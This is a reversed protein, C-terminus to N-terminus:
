QSRETAREIGLTALLDEHLEFWVTHFSDIVPKTFWETHGAHVREVAAGFRDSYTGFRDLAGALAEVIPTIAVHTADLRRLADADHQPDTHDNIRTEGDVERLQWDTCLALFGDNLARFERYRAEVLARTDTRDLQVSLLREGEARGEATLNWGVLRGSRHIAWGRRVADTLAAEVVDAPLGARRSVEPADVFGGLRLAHLVRRFVVEGLEGDVADGSPEPALLESVAALSGGAPAGVERTVHALCTTRRSWTRPSRRHPM